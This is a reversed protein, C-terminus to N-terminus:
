SLKSGSNLVIMIQKHYFVVLFTKMTIKSLIEELKAEHFLVEEMLAKDECNFIGLNHSNDHIIAEERAPRKPKKVPTVLIKREKKDHLERIKESEQKIEAEIKKIEESITPKKEPKKAKKVPKKGKIIREMSKKTQFIACVQKNKETKDLFRSSDKESIQVSGEDNKESNAKEDEYKEEQKEKTKNEVGDTEGNREYKGDDGKDVDCAIEESKKILKKFKSKEPQALGRLEINNESFVKRGDSEESTADDGSSEEDRNGKEKSEFLEEPDLIYQVSSPRKNNVRSKREEKIILENNKKYDDENDKTEENNLPAEKCKELDQLCKELIEKSKNFDVRCQEVEEKCKDLDEHFVNAGFANEIHIGQKEFTNSPPLHSFPSSIPSNENSLEPIGENEPLTRSARYNPKPKHLSPKIHIQPNKSNEDCSNFGSSPDEKEKSSLPRDVSFSRNKNKAPKKKVEEKNEKIEEKGSANEIIGQTNETSNMSKDLFVNNNSSSNDLSSVNQSLLEEKKQHNEAKEQLVDNETEDFEIIKSFQQLNFAVSRSRHSKETKMQSTKLNSKKKNFFGSDGMKVIIKNEINAINEINKISERNPDVTKSSPRPEFTPTEIRREDFIRKDIEPDHITLSINKPNKDSNSLNKSNEPPKTFNENFELPKKLNDPKHLENEKLNSLFTSQTRKKLSTLAVSNSGPTSKRPKQIFEVNNETKSSKKEDFDIKKPNESSISIEETKETNESLKQQRLEKFKQDLFNNLTLAKNASIEASM